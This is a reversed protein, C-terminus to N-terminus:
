AAATFISVRQAQEAVEMPSLRWDYKFHFTKANKDIAVTKYDWKIHTGNSANGDSDLDIDEYIPATANVLSDVYDSYDGTVLAKGLEELVPGAADKIYGARDLDNPNSTLTGDAKYIRENGKGSLYIVPLDSEDEAFAPVAFSMLMALCLVACLLKKM